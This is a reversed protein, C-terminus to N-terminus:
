VYEPIAPEGAEWVGGDPSGREYTADLLVVLRYLTAGQDADGRVGTITARAVDDVACAVGTEEEVRARVRDALSGDTGSVYRPVTPEGDGRVHLVEGEGNYVRVYVDVMGRDARERAAAYDAESVVLTTQNVPFSGFQEELREIGDGIRDVGSGGREM